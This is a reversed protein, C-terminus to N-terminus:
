AEIEGSIDLRTRLALAELEALKAELEQIPREFAMGSATTDTRRAPKENSAMTAAAPRGPPAACRRPSDTAQCGSLDSPLSKSVLGLGEFEVAPTKPRYRVTALMRGECSGPPTAAVCQTSADSAEWRNPEHLRDSDRICM